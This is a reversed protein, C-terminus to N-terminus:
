PESRIEFDARFWRIDGIYYEVFYYGDPVSAMQLISWNWFVGSSEFQTSGEKIINLGSDFWVIRSKIGATVHANVLLTASDSSSFVTEHEHPSACNDKTIEQSTLLFRKAHPFGRHFLKEDVTFTPHTRNGWLRKGEELSAQSMFYVGQINAFPIESPILCEAQVNRHWVETPVYIGNLHSRITDWDVLKLGASGEAQKHGDGKRVANTDTFHVGDWFAVSQDIILYCIHGNQKNTRDVNEQVRYAMPTRPCFYSHIRDWNGFQKDVIVSGQTGGCFVKDLLGANELKQKSWIGGCQGIISLNDICTFHYLKYIGYHDLVKKIQEKEKHIATPM